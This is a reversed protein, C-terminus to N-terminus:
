GRESSTAERGFRLNWPHVPSMDWTFYVPSFAYIRYPVFLCVAGNNKQPRSMCDGKSVTRNQKLHKRAVSIYARLSNVSVGISRAIDPRPVGRASQVIAEIGKCVMTDAGQKSRELSELIAQSSATDDMNETGREQMAEIYMLHTRRAAYILANYIENRIVKCAYTSFKGKGTTTAAAKCLGMCGIQYLDDYDYVSQNYPLSVCTEIVHSVLGLNQTVLTQQAPTLANM